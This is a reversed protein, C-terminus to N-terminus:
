DIIKRKNYIYQRINKTLQESNKKANEINKSIEDTIIISKLGSQFIDKWEEIIKEISEIYKTMNNWIEEPIFCIYKNLYIKLEIGKQELQRFYEECFNKKDRDLEGKHLNMFDLIEQIENRKENFTIFIGTELDYQKQNIYVAEDGKREEKLVSKNIWLDIIKQFFYIIFCILILAILWEEVKQTKELQEILKKM